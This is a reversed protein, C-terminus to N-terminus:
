GQEEIETGDRLISPVYGYKDQAHESAKAVAVGGDQYGLVYADRLETNEHETFATRRIAHKAGDKWGRVYSHYRNAAVVQEPTPVM